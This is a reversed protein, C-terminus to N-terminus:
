SAVQEPRALEGREFQGLRYRSVKFRGGIKETVATFPWLGKALNSHFCRETMSLMPAAEAVSLWASEVQQIEDM